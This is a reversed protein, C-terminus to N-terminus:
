SSTEVVQRRVGCELLVDLAKRYEFIHKMGNERLVYFYSRKDDAVSEFRLGQRYSDFNQFFFLDEPAVEALNRGLFVLAELNPILLQEDAFQLAFYVDGAVLKEPEVPEAYGAIEREKIRM